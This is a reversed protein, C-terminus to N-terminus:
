NPSQFAWSALKPANSLDSMSEISVALTSWSFWSAHWRIIFDPHGETSKVLLALLSFLEGLISVGNNASTLGKFLADLAERKIADDKETAIIYIQRRRVADGLFAELRGFARAFTVATAPRPGTVSKGDRQQSANSRPLELRFVASM